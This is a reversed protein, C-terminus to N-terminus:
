AKGTKKHAPTITWAYLTKGGIQVTQEPPWEPGMDFDHSVVRTGVKLQRWLQPRLKRNVDPLLYLTVVTAPSFDAEFLNGVKFEVRDEVGAKKANEKAEAIRVPNIDIGTGRAGREKAATVVIRGDGCGLDFLVDNKGVKGLDLMRDVIEQPTPVYPVDLKPPAAAAQAFVGRVHLASMAAAIGASFVLTRRRAQPKM